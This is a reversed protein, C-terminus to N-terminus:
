WWIIKNSPNTKSTDSSTTGLQAGADPTRATGDTQAGHRAVYANSPRSARPEPETPAQCATLVAAAVFACCLVVPAPVLSLRQRSSSRAPNLM